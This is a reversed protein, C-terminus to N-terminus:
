SISIQYLFQEWIRMDMHDDHSQHVIYLQWINVFFARPIDLFSWIFYKSLIYM